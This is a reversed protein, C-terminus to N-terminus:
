QKEKWEVSSCNPHTGGGTAYAKCVEQFLDQNEEDFKKGNILVWPVHDHDPTLKAYKEQLLYKLLPNDHCKKLDPFDIMSLDACDNFFSEDFIEDRHGM